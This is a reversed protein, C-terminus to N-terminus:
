EASRFAATIWFIIGGCLVGIDSSTVSVPIESTVRYVQRLCARTSPIATGASPFFGSFHDDSSLNAMTKSAAANFSASSASYQRRFPRYTSCIAAQRFAQRCALASLATWALACRSCLLCSRDEIVAWPYIIWRWEVVEEVYYDPVFGSVRKHHLVATRLHAAEGQERLHRIAAQFTEGSDSVDDVLLVRRGAIQATLPYRVEAVREKHVGHYHEVKISTLDFIGLHDSLIRAPLYGGRGIAVIIDPQFASEHVLRSLARALQYFREWSVLQCPIGKRM